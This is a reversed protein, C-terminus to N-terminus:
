HQPAVDYSPLGFHKEYIERFRKSLPGMQNFEIGQETLWLRAAITDYPKKGALLNRKAEAQLEKAKERDMEEIALRKAEELTQPVSKAEKPEEPELLTARSIYPALLEALTEQNRDSLDIQYNRGRFAFTVAGGKGEAIPTGDLDDIKMVVDAM